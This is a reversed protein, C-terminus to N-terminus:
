AKACCGRTRTSSIRTRGTLCTAGHDFTPRDAEAQDVPNAGAISPLRIRSAAIHGSM